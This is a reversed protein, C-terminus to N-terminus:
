GSRKIAVFVIAALAGVVVHAIAPTLLHPGVFMGVPVACSGFGIGYVAVGLLAMMVANSCKRRKGRQDVPM